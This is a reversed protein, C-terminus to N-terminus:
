KNSPKKNKKTGRLINKLQNVINNIEDDFNFKIEIRNIDFIYVADVMANVLIASPDADSKYEEYQLFYRYANNLVETTKQSDSILATRELNKACINSEIIDRQNM